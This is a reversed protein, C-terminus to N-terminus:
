PGAAKQRRLTFWADIYGLVAMAIVMVPALVVVILAGYMLVVVFVPIMGEGHLWHMIAIGQLSFVTFLVFAIGQLWSWGALVAVVSTVAMLVAMVRGFNLDRFRGYDRWELPGQRYLAHGLLLMVASLAWAVFAVWVTMHQSLAPIQPGILDANAELQEVGSARWEGVMATMVSAWYDAPNGAAMYFALVAGITVIASIQLTLTLSRSWVLLVGMLLAPLWVTSMVWFQPGLSDGIIATVGLILGGAVMMDIVAQRPGQALLLYVLVAGSLFGLLPLSM